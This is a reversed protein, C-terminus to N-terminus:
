QWWSHHCLATMFCVRWKDYWPLFAKAFKAFYKAITIVVMHHHQLLYAMFHIKLKSLRQLWYASKKDKLYSWPWTWPPPRPIISSYYILYVARLAVFRSHLPVVKPKHGQNTYIQLSREFDWLLYSQCFKYLPPVLHHFFLPIWFCWDRCCM